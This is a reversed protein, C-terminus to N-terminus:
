RPSSKGRTPKMTVERVPVFRAITREVVVPPRGLLPDLLAFGGGVPGPEGTVPESGVLDAQEEPHDGVVEAIEQAPEDQGDGDLAPRQRAQLLPHELGAPAEDPMSPVEDQLQGLAVQRRREKPLNEPADLPERRM